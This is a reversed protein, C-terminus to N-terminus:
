KLIIKSMKENTSDIRKCIRELICGLGMFEDSSFDCNAMNRLLGSIGAIEIRIMSLRTQCEDLVNSSDAGLYGQQDLGNSYDKNTTLPKKM